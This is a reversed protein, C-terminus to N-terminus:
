KIKNELKKARDSVPTGAPIKQLWEMAAPNNKESAYTLAIYFAAEFRLLSESNYVHSLDQRAADNAGTHWQTVGRYFLALQSSSDSEVAKNLLPLAKAFEQQNFFVAAQQLLTDTNSGRETTSIMETRGLSDLNNSPLLLYISLAIIVAAAVGSLWRTMPIVKPPSFHQKNLNKLTANLAAAGEDSPLRQQLTTKLERYLSVEAALSPDIRLDTEFQRREEESLEDDAYRIIFEKDYTAM